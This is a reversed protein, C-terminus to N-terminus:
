SSEIINNLKLNKNIYKIFFFFILIASILRVLLTSYAIGILNFYQYFIYNLFINLFATISTIFLTIHEKYIASLYNTYPLTFYSLSIYFILVSLIRGSELYEDSLILEIIINSILSIILSFILLIFFLVFSFKIIKNRNLRKFSSRVVLPFFATSMTNRFMLLTHTIFYPIAYIGVEYQNGMLGIMLIDIKTNLGIMLSVTSFIITSKIRSIDINIKSFYNFEVFKRTYILEIILPIIDSIINIILISLIGYGLLLFIISVSVRFVNKIILLISIYHMQEKIIFITKYFDKLGSTIIQFSYIVIFFKIYNEYNFLLLSSICIFVSFLLLLIKLKAVNSYIKRLKTNPVCGDRIIVRHLGTLSFFTFIGVFNGVTTYIGYDEPGLIKAIYIFGIFTIITSLVNGVSLFITNKIPTIYKDLKM